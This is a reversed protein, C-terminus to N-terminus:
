AGVEGPPGGIVDRALRASTTYYVGGAKKVEPKEEVVARRNGSISIVRGLFQEYVQGLIEGSIVSFEYPCKPYYLDKVITKLIKDDISLHPTLTDPHESEGKERRFHFLGSNYRQDAEHFISLLQEYVGKGTAATQLRGYLEIGRDECIRLFVVRDITVQVAFNLDRANLAPNRLALNRALEDRWLEIEDLFAADVETTGKKRGIKGTDFADFSGKYVAEKSFISAIENWRDPLEDYSIIKLRATSAKDAASPRVRCDYVAIEKFNTLVSLGLKASWGYRRLQFAAAADNKVSIFPKKAELFFKRVGGVRFSYDPAKHIGGVKIADEHVVDKYAEAYGQLNGMDWGLSQFLPDIFEQRVQAENYRGSTYTDEHQGFRQVLDLVEKKIPFPPLPKM